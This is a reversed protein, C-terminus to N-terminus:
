RDSRSRLLANIIEMARRRHAAAAPSELRHVHHLAGRGEVQGASPTRDTGCAETGAM